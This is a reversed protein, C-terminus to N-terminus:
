SKEGKARVDITRAEARRGARYSLIGVMVAIAAFVIHDTEFVHAALQSLTMEAHDGVHAAAPATLIALAGLTIVAHRM